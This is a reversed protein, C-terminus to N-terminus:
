KGVADRRPEYAPLSGMEQRWRERRTEVTLVVFFSAALADMFAHADRDVSVFQPVVQQFDLYALKAEVTRPDAQEGTPRGSPDLGWAPRKAYIIGRQDALEELTRWSEATYLFALPIETTSGDSINPRRYYLGYCDGIDGISSRDGYSLSYQEGKSHLIAVCRVGPVDLDLKPQIDATCAPSYVATVPHRRTVVLTNFEDTSTTSPNTNLAYYPAGQAPGLTLREAIPQIHTLTARFLNLVLMPDEVPIPGAYEGAAIAHFYELDCNLSPSAYTDRTVPARPTPLSSNPIYPPPVFNAAFAGTRQPATSTLTIITKSKRVPM